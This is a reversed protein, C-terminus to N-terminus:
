SRWPNSGVQSGAVGRPTRSKLPLNPSGKELHQKRPMQLRPRPPPPANSSGPTLPGTLSEPECLRGATLLSRVEEVGEAADRPGRGGCSGLRVAVGSIPLPPTGPPLMQSAM